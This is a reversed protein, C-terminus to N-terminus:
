FPFIAESFPFHTDFWKDRERVGVTVASLLNMVGVAGTLLSTIWVAVQTRRTLV